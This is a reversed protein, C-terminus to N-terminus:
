FVGKLTSIKVGNTIEADWYVDTLFPMTYIHWTLRAFIENPSDELYTWVFDSAGFEAVMNIVLKASKYCWGQFQTPAVLRGACSLKGVQINKVVGLQSTNAVFPLLALLLLKCM